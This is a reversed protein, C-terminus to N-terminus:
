RNPGVGDACRVMQHDIIRSRPTCECVYPGKRLYKPVKGNSPAHTSPLNGSMPAITGYFSTHSYRDPLVVWDLVDPVIEYPDARHASSPYM